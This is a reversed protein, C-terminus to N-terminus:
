NRRPDATSPMGEATSQLNLCRLFEDMRSQKVAGTNAVAILVMSLVAMSRWRPLESLTHLALDNQGSDVLSLVIASLVEIDQVENLYEPTPM